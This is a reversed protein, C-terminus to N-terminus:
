RLREWEGNVGFQWNGKWAVFRGAAMLACQEPTLRQSRGIKESIVRAVLGIAEVDRYTGVGVAHRIKAQGSAGIKDFIVKAGPFGYLAVEREKSSLGNVDLDAYKIVLDVGVLFESGDHGLGDCAAVGPRPESRPLSLAGMAQALADPPLSVSASTSSQQPPTLGPLTIDIIESGIIKFPDLVVPGTLYFAGGRCEGDPYLSKLLQLVPEPLKADGTPVVSARRTGTLVELLGDGDVSPLQATAKVEIPTVRLQVFLRHLIDAVRYKMVAPIEGEEMVLTRYNIVYDYDSAAIYNSSNPGINTVFEEFLVGDFDVLMDDVSSGHGMCVMPVSVLTAADPYLARVKHVVAGSISFVRDDDWKRLPITAGHQQYYLGFSRGTHKYFVNHQDRLYKEFSVLNMGLLEGVKNDQVASRFYPVSSLLKFIGLSKEGYKSLIYYSLHKARLDAEM